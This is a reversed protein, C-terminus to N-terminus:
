LAAVETGRRDDNMHKFCKDFHWNRRHWHTHTHTHTHTNRFRWLFKMLVESTTPSLTISCPRISPPPPASLRSPAYGSWIIKVCNEGQQRSGAVCLADTGQRLLLFAEMEAHSNERDTPPTPTQACVASASVFRYYGLGFQVVSRFAMSPVAVRSLVAWMFIRNRSYWLNFLLRVYCPVIKKLFIM